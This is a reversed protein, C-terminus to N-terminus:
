VLYVNSTLELINHLYYSDPENEWQFHQFAISERRYFFSFLYARVSSLENPRWKQVNLKDLREAPDLAAPTWGLVGLRILSRNAVEQVREGPVYQDCGYQVSLMLFIFEISIMYSIYLNVNHM